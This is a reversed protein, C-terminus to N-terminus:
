RAAKTSSDGCGHTSAPMASDGSPLASMRSVVSSVPRTNRTNMSWAVCRGSITCYWSGLGM